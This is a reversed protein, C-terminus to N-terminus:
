KIPSVKRGGGSMGGQVHPALGSMNWKIHSGRGGNWWLGGLVHLADQEHSNRTLILMKQQTSNNVITNKIFNLIKRKLAQKRAWWQYKHYTHVEAPIKM